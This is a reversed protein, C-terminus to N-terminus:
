NKKNFVEDVLSKKKHTVMKHFFFIASIGSIVVLILTIAHWTAGSIGIFNNYNGVTPLSILTPVFLGISIGFRTTNNSESNMTLEIIRLRDKTIVVHDGNTADYWIPTASNLKFSNKIDHNIIKKKSMSIVISFM